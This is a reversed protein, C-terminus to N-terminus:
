RRGGNGSSARTIARAPWDALAQETLGPLGCLAEDAHKGLDLGAHRVAGPTGSLRPAINQMRLSGFVPHPVAVNAERAQFHPDARMDPATRILGCPLRHHHLLAELPKLAITRTGDNILADLEAQHAGLAGQAGHTACRPDEALASRAMAAALRRFVTDQNAAILLLKGDATDFVNSPSVDPLIPATRERIYGAVHFGSVLSEAMALVAKGIAGYGARAAYLGTQGFGTVRVMILRPNIRSLDERGPGWREVTGLRFNEILIDAGALLDRVAQQGEPTRLDLM